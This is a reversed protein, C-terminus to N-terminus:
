SRLPSVTVTGHSKHLILLRHLGQDATKCRLLSEEPRIICPPSLSCRNESCRPHHRASLLIWRNTIWYSTFFRRQRRDRRCSITRHDFSRQSGSFLSVLFDSGAREHMVRVFKGLSKPPNSTGDPHLLDGVVLHAPTTKSFGEEEDNRVETDTINIRRSGFVNGM